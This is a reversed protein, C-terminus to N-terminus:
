IIEIKNAVDLADDNPIKDPHQGQGRWHWEAKECGIQDQQGQYGCHVCTHQQSRDEESSVEHNPPKIVAYHDSKNGRIHKELSIQAAM